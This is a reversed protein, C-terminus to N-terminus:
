RSHSLIAGQSAMLVVAACHVSQPTLMDCCSSNANDLLLCALPVLTGIAVALACKLRLRVVVLAV